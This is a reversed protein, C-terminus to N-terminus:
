HPGPLLLRGDPAFIAAEPTVTAGARQALRHATDLVLPCTYGYAKAHRRAADRTLNPDTYVLAFTVKRPAYHTFIRQIEPAYSNSIPCDSAIFVLVLAQKGQAMARLDKDADARVCAASLVFTCFAAVVWLYRSGQYVSQMM